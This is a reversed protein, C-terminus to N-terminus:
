PMMDPSPELLSFKNGESDEAPVFLGVKPIDTVKEDLIKGGAKKVDEMAKHIDDVGIVCRYANIEKKGNMTQYIGGNIGPETSKDEATMVVVYNGMDEGQQNMQWGFAEKYFKKARQPDSAEIEFHVVRNM